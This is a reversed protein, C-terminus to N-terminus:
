WSDPEAGVPDPVAPDPDDPGPDDTRRISGFCTAPPRTSPVGARVSVPHPPPERSGSASPACDGCTWQFRGAWQPPEDPQHPLGHPRVHQFPGYQSQVYQDPHSRHPLWAQSRDEHFQQVGVHHEGVRYEDQQFPQGYEVNQQDDHSGQHLSQHLGKM